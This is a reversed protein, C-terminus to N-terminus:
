FNLKIGTMYTNYYYYLETTIQQKEELQGGLYIQLGRNVNWNATAAFRVTTLDDSNNALFGNKENFQTSRNLIIESYLQIKKSFNIFLGEKLGVSQSLDTSQILATSILSLRSGFFYLTLEPSVQLQQQYNLSSYSASLSLKAFDLNKSVQLGGLWYLEWQFPKVFNFPLPPPLPPIRPPPPPPFFTYVTNDKYELYIASVAPSLTWGNKLVFDAKLYYQHQNFYGWNFEQTLYTYGHYLYINRNFYQGIGLHLFTMDGIYNFDFRDFEALKQGAEVYIFQLPKHKPTKLKIQLTSDYLNTSQIAERERGAFVQSYYLYEQMLTDATNYELAKQFHRHANLYNGREYQAIGLRARLYFYDIEHDIAQNGLRNLSKWNNNLYYQYSRQEVEASNLSDTNQARVVWSTIGFFVLFCYFRRM